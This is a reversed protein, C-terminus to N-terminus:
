LFEFLAIISAFTVVRRVPTMKYEKPVPGIRPKAVVNIMPIKVDNNEANNMELTTKSRLNSALFVM